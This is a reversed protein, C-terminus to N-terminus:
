LLSYAISVCILSFVLVVVTMGLMIKTHKDM